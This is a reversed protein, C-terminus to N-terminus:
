PRREAQERILRITEHVRRAADIARGQNYAQETTQYSAHSHIPMSYPSQSVKSAASM